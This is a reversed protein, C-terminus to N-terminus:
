TNVTSAHMIRTHIQTKKQINSKSHPRYDANTSLYDKAHRGGASCKQTASDYYTRDQKDGGAEYGSQHHHHPTTTTTRFTNKKNKIFPLWPQMTIMYTSRQFILINKIQM